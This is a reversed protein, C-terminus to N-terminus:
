VLIRGRIGCLKRADRKIIAIRSDGIVKDIRQRAVTIANDNIDCGIACRNLLKAEILTTGSGLFQDLIIDNEKSYRLIINRPVYPSWNGPYDGKHTSWNGRDPFSWVTSTEIAFDDLSFVQM